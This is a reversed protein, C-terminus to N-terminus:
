HFVAGRRDRSLGPWWGYRLMVVARATAAARRITTRDDDLFKLIWAARIDAGLNRGSGHLTRQMHVTLGGVPLPCSVARNELVAESELGHNGFSHHPRIGELHSGPIFRMCGNREDVDVMALWMTAVACDHGPDFAVDQHWATKGGTRAPKFIAHDFHLRVRSSGLLEQATQRIQRYGATRKLAPSMRTTWIIEPVRTTSEPSAGIDRGTSTPLREYQLFLRDLLVRVERVQDESLIPRALPVFGDTIFRAKEDNSLVHSTTTDRARLRSLRAGLTSFSRDKLTRTIGVSAV